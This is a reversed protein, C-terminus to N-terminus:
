CSYGLKGQPGSFVVFTIEFLVYMKLVFYWMRLVIFIIDYDNM